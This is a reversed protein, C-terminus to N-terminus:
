CIYSRVGAILGRVAAWVGPWMLRRRTLLIEAATQPGFASAERYRNWRDYESAHWGGDYYSIVIDRDVAHFNTGQSGYCLCAEFDVGNATFNLPRKPM